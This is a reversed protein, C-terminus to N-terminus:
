VHGCSGAAPVALSSNAPNLLSEGSGATAVLGFRVGETGLLLTEFVVLTVGFGTALVNM